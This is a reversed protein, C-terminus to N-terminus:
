QRAEWERIVGQLFERVDVDVVDDVHEYFRGDVQIRLSGDFNPRVHISRRQFIPTQGLRFQLLEEIQDAIGGGGGENANRIEAVGVEMKMPQAAPSSDLTSRKAAWAGQQSIVASTVDFNPPPLGAAQAGAQAMRALDKVLNIFRKAMGRHGMEPVTQFLTEGMQIILSGDSVDRWVRMVEVSDVPIEGSDPVYASNDSRNPEPGVAELDPQATVPESEEIVLRTEVSPVVPPRVAEMEAKPAPTPIPEMFSSLDPEPLDSTLSDIDPLPMDLDGPDYYGGNASASPTNSAAAKQTALQQPQQTSIGQIMNWTQTFINPLSPLGERQRRKRENHRYGVLAILAFWLLGFFVTTLFLRFIPGQQIFENFSDGQM